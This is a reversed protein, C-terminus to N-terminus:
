RASRALARRVLHVVLEAFSMGDAAAAQPLLSTPTFGPITNTELLTPRGEDLLFDTRSMDRCGLARHARVALAQIEDRLSDPIEAPTVERTAGPTYKAAYDFFAFKDSPIIETVPLPRPGEDFDLVGCTLERGKVVAEVVVERGEALHELAAAEAGEASEPFSVGCSSGSASPKVVCPYLSAWDVSAVRPDGPALRLARPTPLGEDRYIAKARGKDMALASAAVGSGVYSLRAAELLGQLTGDEGFAGHLAPFVVDAVASLRILADGLSLSPEADFSWRGDRGISVSVVPGQSALAAVVQRGSALSVDHESSPGGMLVAVRRGLM